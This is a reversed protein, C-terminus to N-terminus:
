PRQVTTTVSNNNGSQSVVLYQGPNAQTISYSNDDGSQRIVATANTAGAEQLISGSNRAGSQEIRALQGFGRQEVSASNGSNKQLIVIEASRRGGAFYFEDGPQGSGPGDAPAAGVGARQIATAANDNGRQAIEVRNQADAAGTGAQEVTAILNVGDQRITTRNQSAASAGNGQTVNANLNRSNAGSQGSPGSGFFASEPPSGSAITAIDAMGQEVLAYNRQSRGGAPGAQQFITTSANVAFQRVISVQFDGYQAIGVRNLARNAPDTATASTGFDGADSQYVLIGSRAGLGQTLEAFTDGYQQLQIDGREGRQAITAYARAQAGNSYTLGATQAGDGQIISSTDFLGRQWTEAYHFNGSHAIGSRNGQGESRNALGAVAVATLGTGSQQLEVLNGQTRGSEADTPAGLATGGGQLTVDALNNRGNQSVNSRNGFGRIAVNARNGSLTAAVPQPTNIAGNHGQVIVSQNRAATSGEYLFVEAVNGRSIQSINSVGGNSSIQAIGQVVRASNDSAQTGALTQGTARQNITSSNDSGRQQVRAVNRFANVAASGSGGPTGQGITSANRNGGSQVVEAIHDDGQHVAVTFHNNGTQEGVSTNRNGYQRHDAQNDNGIQALRSENLDGIQEVTARNSIGNQVVSSRNDDNGPTANSVAAQNDTGTQAVESYNTGVITTQAAAAGAWLAIVSGSLM